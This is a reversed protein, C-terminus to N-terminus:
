SRQINLTKKTFFSYDPFSPKCGWLEHSNQSSLSFLRL